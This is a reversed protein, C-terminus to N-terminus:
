TYAYLVALILALIEFTHLYLFVWFHVDTVKLLVRQAWYRGLHQMGSERYRGAGRRIPEATQLELGLLSWCGLHTVKAWVSSFIGSNYRLTQFLRYCLDMFSLILHFVFTFNLPSLFFFRLVFLYRFIAVPVHLM